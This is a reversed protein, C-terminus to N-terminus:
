KLAPGGNKWLRHSRAVHKIDTHCNVEVLTHCLVETLVWKSEGPLEIDSNAVIETPPNTTKLLVMKTASGKNTM